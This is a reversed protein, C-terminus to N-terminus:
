RREVRFAVTKSATNGARDSATIRLVYRGTRALRVKAGRKVARAKDGARRLTAQWTAVGSSDSCTFSVTLRQGLRYTRAKPSTVTIRPALKDVVAAPPISPVAGAPPAPTPSPEPTGSTPPHLEADIADLADGVTMVDEALGATSIYELQATFETNTTDYDGQCNDPDDEAGGTSCRPTGDPVVEHYVIVLWYHHAKAYEVWERFQASTTASTMNQVRIDYPELDLRSNYGEEVSRGSRYGAAGLAAIVKADYLGFPYAFDEVAQGTITELLSRSPGLEANLADLSLTPLEPHTVSHSGIEHGQEAMTRVEDPTMLFPDTHPSLGKTPVYQTTKFGKANLLPLAEDYIAQSGDDFTLSIMPKSFGPPAAVERVSYDDTQLYGKAAIFHVFQARIAGAPMTFGTTYQTWTPEPAIGSFLNAWHGNVLGDGDTDTDNVTEYYVSVATNVDSKYWDSFTYYRGATVSVPDPVWKSDGGDTYAGVDVRASRIGGHGESAWTLQVQNPSPDTNGWTSPTWFAPAAGSNDGLELGPNYLLEDGPSASAAPAGAPGVSLVLALSAAILIAPRKM